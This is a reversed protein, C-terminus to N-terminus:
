RFRYKFLIEDAIRNFRYGKDMRNAYWDAIIMFLAEEIDDPCTTPSTFGTKFQVQVANVTDQTDPWCYGGIPYIRAPKGILDEGYNTDTVEQTEGDGDTYKVSEISAVPWLWIEIEKKPFKDLLLDYTAENLRLDYKQEVKSQAAKIMQTLYTDDDTETSPIELHTKVDALSVIWSTQATILKFSM